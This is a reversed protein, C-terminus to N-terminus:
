GTDFRGTCWVRGSSDLMSVTTIADAPADVRMSWDDVDAALTRMTRTGDDQEVVLWYSGAPAEGWREVVEAWGPVDLTLVATPEGEATVEGVVRGRETRMEAVAVAASPGSPVVAVLGAVVVVAAAALAAVMRRRPRRRPRPVGDAVLPPGGAGLEVGRAASAPLLGDGAAREAALRTLVRDRFGPPPEVAPAALLVEDAAVALSAVEARCGECRELHALAAAREEGTLLGLALDPAVERVEDCTPDGTV